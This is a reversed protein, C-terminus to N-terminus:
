TLIEFQSVKYESQTRTMEGNHINTTKTTKHEVEQTGFHAIKSKSPQYEHYTFDHWLPTIGVEVFWLKFCNKSRIRQRTCSVTTIQSWKAAVLTLTLYRTQVRTM